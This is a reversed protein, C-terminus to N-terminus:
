FMAFFAHPIRALMLDYTFLNTCLCAIVYFCGHSIYMHYVNINLVPYLSCKLILHCLVFFVCSLLSTILILKLKNCSIIFVKSVAKQRLKELEPQVDKLAKSMKVMTDLEVFKLKKSLIELTSM